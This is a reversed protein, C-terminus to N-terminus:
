TNLVLDKNVLFNIDLSKFRWICIEEDNKIRKWQNTAKNNESIHDKQRVASSLELSSCFFAMKVTKASSTLFSETKLVSASDKRLAWNKWVAFVWRGYIIQCYWYFVHFNLIHCLLQYNVNILFYLLNRQMKCAQWETISCYIAENLLFVAFIQLCISIIVNM